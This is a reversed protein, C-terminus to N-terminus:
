QSHNSAFLGEFLGQRGLTRLSDIKRKERCDSATGRHFYWIADFFISLIYVDYLHRQEIHSLQRHKSYEQVVWRAKELILSDASHPWAWYEILGVLDFTLFTHNADDFDLLAVLEDHHFLANSFHFDGHCIGLPLAQPLDIETLEHALWGLKEYADSTNIKQAEAQALRHCVEPTYNQRHPTYPSTYRQTLQHLEAAKQILQQWHYTQPHEIPEGDLYTFLMYPKEHYLGIFAGRVNSLPSPCPYDNARLYVLLDREFMVSKQSRCEYYRFVFKGQSTSLIYNTQVTGQTIAESDRYAGLDYQPLITIFDERTFPTKVAV